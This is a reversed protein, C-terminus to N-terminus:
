EGLRKNMWTLLDEIVEDKRLENFIEHYLGDYMKLTKDEVVLSNYTWEGTEKKVIGDLKGHMVITPVCIKEINDNVFDCGVIFAQKMLRFKGKKLVLPDENYAKVVNPDGCVGNGLKNNYIVMKTIFNPMFRLIKAVSPTKNCAGSLALLDIKKNFACAYASAVLGGMSHGLLVIKKGPNEKKVLEIYIDLDLLFDEFRKLDGKIGESRGHGRADYRYVSYNENNLKEVIYDYRDLHEFIGHVIVICAKPNKVLDKRAYIEINEHGYFSFVEGNM